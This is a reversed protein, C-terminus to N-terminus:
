KPPVATLVHNLVNNVTTNGINSGMIAMAPGQPASPMQSEALRHRLYECEAALAARCSKKHQTMNDIRTFTKPCHTCKHANVVDCPRKRNGHATLDRQKAFVGGCKNCEFVM